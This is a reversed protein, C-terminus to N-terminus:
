KNKTDQEKNRTTGICIDNKKKLRELKEKRKSSRISSRLPVKKETKTLLIEYRTDV